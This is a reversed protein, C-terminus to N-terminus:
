GPVTRSVVLMLGDRATVSVSDGRDAGEDCRAAWIEGDVRVQGLPRCSDVVTATRGLLTEVGAATQRGRVRRHWWVIEGAFAVLGVVAGVLNWPSPLAVLLIIAVFFFM